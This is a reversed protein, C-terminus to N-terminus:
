WLAPTVSPTQSTSAQAPALALSPQKLSRKERQTIIRCLMAEGDKAKALVEGDVVEFGACNNNEESGRQIVFLAVDCLLWCKVM